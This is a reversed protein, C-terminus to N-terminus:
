RAGAAVGGRPPTVGGPNACRDRPPEPLVRDSVGGLSLRPEFLLSCAAHSSQRLRVSPPAITGVFPATTLSCNPSSPFSRFCRQTATVASGLFSARLSRVHDTMEPMMAAAAVIIARRDAALAQLMKVPSCGGVARGPLYCRAIPRVVHAPRPTRQRAATARTAAPHPPLV